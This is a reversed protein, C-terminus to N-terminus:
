EFTVKKGSFEKLMQEVLDKHSSIGSVKLGGQSFASGKAVTIVGTEYDGQREVYAVVRSNHGTGVLMMAGGASIPGKGGDAIAKVNDRSKAQAADV